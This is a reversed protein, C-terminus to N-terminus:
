QRSINKQEALEKIRAKAEAEAEEKTYKVFTLKPQDEKQGEEFINVHWNDRMQTLNAVHGLFVLKKRDLVFPQKRKPGPKKREGPEMGEEWLRKALIRSYSIESIRRCPRFLKAFGALGAIRGGRCRVAFRSVSESDRPTSKSESAPRTLRM